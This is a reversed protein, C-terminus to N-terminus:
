LIGWLGSDLAWLRNGGRQGESQVTAFNAVTSEPTLEGEEFINRIHRSIVSKDKQFLDAIQNLSLWVSEGRLQVQIRTV